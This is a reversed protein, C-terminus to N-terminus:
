RPRFLSLHLILSNLKRAMDFNIKAFFRIATHQLITPCLIAIM